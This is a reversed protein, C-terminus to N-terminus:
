IRLVSLRALLTKRPVPHPWLARPIRAHRAALLAVPDTRLLGGALLVLTFTDLVALCVTMPDTGPGPLEPGTPPLDAPDAPDAAPQHGLPAMDMAMDTAMDTPSHMTSSAVTHEPTGGGHGLVPHGLTHMTAIGFLLVVFLLLRGYRARRGTEM